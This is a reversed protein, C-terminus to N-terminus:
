ARVSLGPETVHALAACFEQVLRVEVIEILSWRVGVKDAKGCDYYEGMWWVLPRGERRSEFRNSRRWRKGIATGTPMSCSYDLLKKFERMTLRVFRQDPSM